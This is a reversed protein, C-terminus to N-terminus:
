ASRLRVGTPSVKYNRGWEESTNGGECRFDGMDLLFIQLGPQLSKKESHTRSEYFQFAFYIECLQCPTSLQWWAYDM